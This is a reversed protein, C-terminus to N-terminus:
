LMDKMDDQTRDTTCGHSTFESQQIGDTNTTKGSSLRSLLMCFQPVTTSGLEDINNECLTSMENETTKLFPKMPANCNDLKSHTM